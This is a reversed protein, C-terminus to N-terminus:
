NNNHKLFVLLEYISQMVFKNNEKEFIWNKLNKDESQIISIKSDSERDIIFGNRFLAKKTLEYSLGTGFLDVKKYSKNKTFIEGTLHNIEFTESEFLENLAGNLILDEPAGQKAENPLMLWLKDTQQLAINLDHTSFIITKGHNLTLEKLLSTIEFKNKLDLFATPEDMIMVPTDQALARAIMVKQREGDSLEFIYRSKLEQLGTNEIAEEVIQKDSHSTLGFWNLYPSRGLAVIDYVSLYLNSLNDTLVVSITKSLQKRSFNEILIEDILIDGSIIPQLNSLSRLLTSKGVGNQGILAILTGKEATLNISKYVSHSKGKVIYGINADQINLFKSQTNNTM